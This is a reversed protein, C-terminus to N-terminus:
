RWGLITGTLAPLPVVQCNEINILGPVVPTHPLDANMVSFALWRGNPSFRPESVFWNDLQVLLRVEQSPDHNIYLGPTKWGAAQDLYAIWGASSFALGGWYDRLRTEILPVVEGSLLDLTKISSGQSFVLQKGDPTWGWL